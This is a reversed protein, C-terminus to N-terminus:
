DAKFRYGVGAETLLLCPQTPHPDIKQRLLMVYIDLSACARTYGLMAAFFVVTIAVYALDLM